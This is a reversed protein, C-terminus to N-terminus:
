KHLQGRAIASASSFNHSPQTTNDSNVDARKAQVVMWEVLIPRVPTPIVDFVGCSKAHGYEASTMHASMVVIPIRKASCAAAALIDRYNGDSFQSDCFVLRINRRNLIEQCHDVSSALITDLGQRALMDTVRQRNELDSSAVVIEWPRAM